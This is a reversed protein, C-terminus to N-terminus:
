NIGLHALLTKAVKKQARRVREDMGLSGLIKRESVYVTTIESDIVCGTVVFGSGESPVVADPYQRLFAYPITHVLGYRKWEYNEDIRKAVVQTKSGGDGILVEPPWIKELTEASAITM